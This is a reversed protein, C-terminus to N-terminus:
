GELAIEQTLNKLWSGQIYRKMGIVVRVLQESQVLLFVLAINQINFVGVLIFAMPLGVLWLIGADLFALFRSDGGARLSSFIIVNFMRLSLRLSFVQVILIAGRIVEPDTLGFLTVLYRASSLIIVSTLVSLVFGLGIFYNGKKRAESLDGKGLEAGLMSSNANNIGMIVFMFVNAIQTGVYYSDMAKTGLTGFARIYLTGGIGFFFENFILPYTRRFMKNFMDKKIYFMERLTGVFSQKSAYAYILHILFGTLNAILTAIAAGQIGLQPLGFNGFILGYNLIVNILMAIIGVVMPVITKQISRYAFSFMMTLAGPLYSFLVISLYSVSATIVATDKIYFRMLASGFFYAALMWAISILSILMVGFGFSKRQNTHDKAGYFQAMYIGAGAAAGYGITMMLIEIQAATGVATVQNIRAVMISDVVGMASNLLQQLALPVAIWMVKRIFEKPGIYNRLSMPLTFM